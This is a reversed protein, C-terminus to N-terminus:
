FGIRFSGFIGFRKNSEKPLPTPLLRWVFDLRFVKLINDVGTGAELYLKGNLSQFANSGIFNIQRNVDSLDSMIGKAEWFQRFKLKRTLPIFRFLGNGINHELNFGAYRDSIYEFKNMMNFAYKNYYYIENGPHIELLPFPLGGYVKGGFLNFYLNGYPAIKLTHSVRATIKHYNYSSKLIGRIGKTYQLEVIPLSSGLSSRYFTTELFDELYAYRIKLAIETSRLAMGDSSSFFSKDPLNLLPNFQRNTFELLFSFGPKTEKFVEFRKEEVQLYKIAVGNKRAALTFINDSSAEDYYNQGGDRDKTYSVYFYLRPHKMPLFYAKAQGKFKQDRFGYALYGGLKLKHNFKTNTVVDFRLRTGELTNSSVWNYWAGISIKGVDTYGSGVFNIINSYKTYAPLSKITDLMKYLAKENRSLEEHRHALWYEPAQGEADPAVIVEAAKKNEALYQVVSPDNVVPNRYTTTKRGKVGTRSKGLPSLDVIFKDKSLFWISDNIQRFEQIMSLKEVFNVNADLAPRLTIKQIAFSTDHIWADGEFTNQGKHKPTFRLHVLRRSGLYQTDLLKFNYYNDGNDHFPSVFDKDFVPIFNSYVNVNQYSTGLYKTVSENEIGNTKSAHIVERTKHPDRQWYFDSLTETLFVPLFPKEESSDVNDLIFNFPKLLFNRGLKNKNVNLIDLELKNYVEYSFNDNKFIDQREKHKVVRRWLWLARDVKVKIVVENDPPAVTVLIAVYASDKFVPVNLAISKYGVSTVLLSDPLTNSFIITFHGASDTLTGIGSKKLIVSAFPIAEDSQIDKVVGKLALRQSHVIAPLLLFFILGYAVWNQKKQLIM